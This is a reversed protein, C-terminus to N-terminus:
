IFSAAVMKMAGANFQLPGVIHKCSQHPWQMPRAVTDLAAVSIGCETAIVAMIVQMTVAKDANMKQGTEHWPFLTSIAHSEQQV